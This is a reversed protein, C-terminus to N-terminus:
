RQFSDFGIGVLASSFDHDSEAVLFSTSSSVELRKILLRKTSLLFHNKSNGIRDDVLFQVMNVIVEFGTM